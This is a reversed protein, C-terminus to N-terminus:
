KAYGDKKGFRLAWGAVFLALGLATLVPIPWNLQGTQPLTPGAPPEPTVPEVPPEVPAAGEVLEAVKPSADVDYVYVGDELMPVSALFPKAKEYGDAAEQQVLLYLGPELDTFSAKGDGGIEQKDGAIGNDEAYQALNAALEASEVNELAEGSDAFAETLAFGYNGDEARVEGVRYATLTGGPVASDGQHMTVTVSGTRSLDPVEHAYAAVPTACALALAFLMALLRKKIQM